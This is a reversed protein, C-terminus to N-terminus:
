QSEPDLPNLEGFREILSRSEVDVTKPVGIEIRVFWDGGDAGKGKLRLTKGSSTGPPITVSVSGKPTDVRVRGGLVAEVLSVRVSDTTSIM